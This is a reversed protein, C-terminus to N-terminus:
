CPAAHLRGLNGVKTTHEVARLEVCDTEKMVDEMYMNSLAPQRRLREGSLRRFLADSGLSDEGQMSASAATATSTATSEGNDKLEAKEDVFTAWRHVLSALAPSGDSWRWGRRSPEAEDEARM